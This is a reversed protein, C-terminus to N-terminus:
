SYPMGVECSSHSASPTVQWCPLETTSRLVVAQERDAGGDRARQAAHVHELAGALDLDDGAAEVLLGRRDIGITM